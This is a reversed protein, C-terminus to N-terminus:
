IRIIKRKQRRRHVKIMYDLIIYSVLIGLFFMIIFGIQGIIILILIFAGSIMLFWGKRNSFAGVLMGFCFFGLMLFVTFVNAAM